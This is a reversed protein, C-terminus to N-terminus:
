ERKELLKKVVIEIRELLYDVATADLKLDDVKTRLATVEEKIQDLSKGLRSEIKNGLKENGTTITERLEKTETAITERLEKTETTIAKNLDVIQVFFFGGGGFILTVILAAVRLVLQFENRQVVDKLPPQPPLQESRLAAIVEQLEKHTMSPSRKADEDM